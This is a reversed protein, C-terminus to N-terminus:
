DVEGDRMRRILTASDEEQYPLTDRFAKLRDQWAQREPSATMSPREVQDELATIRAVPRGDDTLLVVEGARARAVLSQLPQDADTIPHFLTGMDAIHAEARVEDM